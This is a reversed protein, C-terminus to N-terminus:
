IEERTEFLGTVSQNIITVKGGGVTNKNVSMVGANESGNIFKLDASPAVDCRLLNLIENITKIKKYLDDSDKFMEQNDCIKQIPNAPRNKYIKSLKEKLKDYLKNVKENSLKDLSESIKHEEKKGENKDLYKEVARLIETNEGDLRLQIAGKFQLNREDEGRIRMPFGNIEMLTNKKIKPVIIEVNKLGKVEKCYDEFAKPNHKLQSAVYIPVGIINKVRKGKKNDFEIQAFYSTGAGRYGGYKNPDLGAKLKINLNKNDKSIPNADFLEGKGCYTYETHLLNDQKMIKRVRDITGGYGVGEEDEICKEWIIKDGRKVDFSFIRNLSYEEKKNKKFWLIPNSTFKANYVDGVVINLYADKGHHYDNIRRSKLVNLPKKRFQSALSAKVYVIETDENIRKLLEAVAKSSQRTEVIQRSIFGALEEETFGGKRTLRNYKKKSIFGKELLAKWYGIMKKQIEGDLVDNSKRANVAKNVLVLNDISDDKIKSQPYIHDRDWKSNKKMLEELDIREGTYMCKGWQTFYLYLKMSNLDREEFAELKESLYRVDEKCSKYLEELAKKRSVTRKGKEGGGRAMEVFIKEPPCGMVKKIEESIQVSQWIARKTAPSVYMTDVLEEYSIKEIKETVKDNEKEIEKRFTFRESLLQMLNENTEWMAEILKFTEGSEIDAGDIGKLFKRSFNGWGSYRFKCVKKLQEETLKNPYEKEIVRRIMKSDDGYITIWRIIDEIMTQIESKDLGEEPFIQKKFDMYSKLSTHFDNDFGSLDEKQLGPLDKKLYELVMKGTVKARNQFLNRYIDQKTKVSVKNGRIRLNNLENLVMYKSYLLSNKPLVDEGVLYTCKNTMRQIFAENSKNYDVIKEINWPYIKGNQGDKRVMWNNSGQKRHRDSLPGVFYPIRFEFISVIKNKNSIGEDDKENLFPMYKAANELIKILEAKHIQNPVVGNSKNRQLPLIDEIQEAELFKKAIEYGYDEEGIAELKKRLEKLFNDTQNKKVTIKKGNKNAAGIYSSYSKDNKDMFFSKYVDRGFNEHILKKIDKLNNKHKEYQTVKANSIYHEGQLIEMLVRWDYVGKALDIIHIFNPIESEMDPRVDEEYNSEAFSFSGKTLSKKELNFLKEVDGRNGVILKFIIETIGNQRRVEDKSLLNDTIKLCEKIEKVKESKAKSRDTLISKIQEKVTETEGEWALDEKLADRLKDFAINFDKAEGLNGEILFHGRSKLIHHIALYVLRPDHPNENEILEKRLHYITPYQGYYHIDNYDEGIFLPYKEKISKDEMHLKSENLRIFFTNDVNTIEQSFIEQLLKIRQNRRKLRRRSSRKLRRESATDASEFLRIGWMDKNRFKCLNYNEDTVAWGVSNTGIDLGLYYNKNM